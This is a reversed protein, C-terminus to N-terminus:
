STFVSVPGSAFKKALAISALSNLPLPPFPPGSFITAFLFSKKLYCFSRQNCDLRFVHNSQTQSPKVPPSFAFASPKLSFASISSGGEGPKPAVLAPFNGYGEMVKWLKGYGVMAPIRLPASRCSGCGFDLTSPRSNLALPPSYPGTQPTVPPHRIRSPLLVIKANPTMSNSKKGQNPKILCSQPNRIGGQWEDPADYQPLDLFFPRQGCIVSIFASSSNKNGRDANIQRTIQPCNRIRTAAPRAPNEANKRPWQSLM